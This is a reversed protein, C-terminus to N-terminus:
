MTPQAILTAPLTSWWAWLMPTPITFFGCGWVSVRSGDNIKEIAEYLKTEVEPTKITAQDEVGNEFREVMLFEFLRIQEHHSRGKYQELLADWYQYDKFFLQQAKHNSRNYSFVLVLANSTQDFHYRVCM